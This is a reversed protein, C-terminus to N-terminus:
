IARRSTCRASPAAVSRSLCSSVLLSSLSRTLSTLSLCPWRVRALLSQSCLATPQVRPQQPPQTRVLSMASKAKAYGIVGGLTSLGALFFPVHTEGMIRDTSAALLHFSVLAVALPRGGACLAALCCLELTLGGRGEGNSARRMAGAVRVSSALQGPRCSDVRGFIVGHACPLLM